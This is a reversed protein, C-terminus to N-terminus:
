KKTKVKRSLAWKDLIEFIYEENVDNAEVVKKLLQSSTNYSEVLKDISLKEEQIANYISTNKDKIQEITNTNNQLSEVVDKNIYESVKQVGMDYQELKKELQKIDYSKKKEEIIADLKQIQTEAKNQINNVASLREEVKECIKILNDIGSVYKNTSSLFRDVEVALIKSKEAQGSLEKYIKDLKAQINGDFGTNLNKIDESISDFSTSFAKLSEEIPGILDRYEKFTEILNKIENTDAM